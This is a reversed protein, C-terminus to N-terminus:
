IGLSGKEGDRIRCVPVVSFKREEIREIGGEAAVNAFVEVAGGDDGVARM